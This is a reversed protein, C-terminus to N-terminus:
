CKAGTSPHTTTLPFSPQHKCSGPVAATGVQSCRPPAVLSAPSMLVPPANNPSAMVGRHGVSNCAPQFIHSEKMLQKLTLDVWRWM